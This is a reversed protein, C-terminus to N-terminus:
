DVLRTFRKITEFSPNSGDPFELPHVFIGESEYTRPDYLKDNLRIIGGVKQDLFTSCLIEPEVQGISRQQRKM